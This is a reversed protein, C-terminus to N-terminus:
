ISSFSFINNNMWIWWLRLTKYLQSQFINNNMLLKKLIFIFFLFSKLFSTFFDHNINFNFTNKIILLFSFVLFFFFEPGGTLRPSARGSRPSAQDPGFFDPNLRVSYFLSRIKFNKRNFPSVQKVAWDRIKKLSLSDTTEDSKSLRRTLASWTGVAGHEGKKM